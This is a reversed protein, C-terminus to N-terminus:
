HSADDLDPRPLVPPRENSKSKKQTEILDVFIAPSSASVPVWGSGSGCMGNFTEVTNDAAVIRRFMSLPTGILDVGRVLQDPSGDAFVKYVEVPMVNFANPMTRGISTFGGQVDEFYYGYEHGQKRAEKRLLEKLEAATKSTTAKVILNSQRSEPIGGPATRAHGNSGNSGNIPTRTMLFSRLIGDEVATVKQAPVGEDDYRYFGNVETNGVNKLTPDLTISLFSPLVPSGIKNKFTHGDFDSKMRKGELRHGFIEHFFVGSARGSLIAPGVFPDAVPATRLATLTTSMEKIDRLVSDRSPLGQPEYAYYMRFLPLEMGDSAKTISYVSQWTSTSNEIISSGDTDTFYKRIIKFEINAVGALLDPNAKLLASYAVLNKVLADVDPRLAAYLLPPDHYVVKAAASFDAASDEEAAKVKKNTLVQEYAQVANKYANDTNKWVALAIIDEDNVVPITGPFQGFGANHTNDLQYSGLRVSPSFIRYRSSDIGSVAGFSTRINYTTIDDVRYSMYYLRDDAKKLQGFERNLEKTLTTMLLDQAPLPQIICTLGIAALRLRLNFIM